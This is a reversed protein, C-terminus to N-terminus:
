FDEEEKLFNRMMLAVDYTKGKMDRFYDEFNARVKFGRSQFAKIVHKLETVVEVKLWHLKEQSALDILENLILSGLGLGQFPRALFIQQIEGVNLAANQGRYLNLTAVPQKTEMDEAVLAMIRHSNEPNMWYDVVKSNKVDEKCFQVDEQPAQQFLKILGDRDRGNLFRIVVTKGNTM